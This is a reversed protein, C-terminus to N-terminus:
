SDLDEWTADIVKGIIRCDEDIVTLPWSPNLPKLFHDGADEVYKKFTAAKKNTLYAVCLDGDHVARDPDVLILMGEPFSVGMPTTMSDGKVELWFSRDSPKKASPVWRDADLEIFGDDVESFAGAQVWSLVPRLFGYEGSPVDKSEEGFLLQGPSTKLVRALVLADEASIKRKGLEYNGIRSQSGWNCLKALQEQSFGAAERLNKLREGVMEQFTKM